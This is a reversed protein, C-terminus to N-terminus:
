GSYLTKRAFTPALFQASRIETVSNIQLTFNGKQSKRSSLLGELREEGREIKRELLISIPRPSIKQAGAGRGTSLYWLSAIKSPLLCYAVVTHNDAETSGTVLRLGRALPVRTLSGHGRGQALRRFDLIGLALSPVRTQSV